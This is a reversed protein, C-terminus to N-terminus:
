GAASGAASRPLCRAAAVQRPLRRGEERHRRLTDAAEGVQGGRLLTTELECQEVRRWQHPLVLAARRQRSPADSESSKLDSTRAIHSMSPRVFFCTDTRKSM